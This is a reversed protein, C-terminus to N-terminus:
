QSRFVLLKCGLFNLVTYCGMAVIQAINRDFPTLWLVLGANAGYAVIFVGIFRAFVRGSYVSQKFTFRGHLTFSVTLGVAYGVANSLLPSWHLWDMCGFIVVLGIATNILGVVGFAALQRILQM